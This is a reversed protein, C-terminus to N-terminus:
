VYLFEVNLQGVQGSRKGLRPLRLSPSLLVKAGSPPLAFTCIYFVLCYSSGARGCRESYAIYSELSSDSVYTDILVLLLLICTVPFVISERSTGAKRKTSIM